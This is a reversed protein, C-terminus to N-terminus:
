GLRHRWYDPHRKCHAVALVALHAPREVYVLAYPFRRALHRRAGHRWERHLHPAAEIEATLRRIEDYFRDGLGEACEAYSKVATVFEDDAEPHFLAAKL